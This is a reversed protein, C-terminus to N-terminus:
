SYAFVVKRRAPMVILVGGNGFAYYNGAGNLAIDIESELSSEIFVGFGYRGVFNGIRPPGGEPSWDSYGGPLPTQRWQDYGWSSHPVQRDQDSWTGFFALGRRQLAQAVEEPLEYAMLGASNCGGGIFCPPASEANFLVTSVHLGDPVFRGIRYRDWFAVVTGLLLISFALAKLHGFRAPPCTRKRMDAM